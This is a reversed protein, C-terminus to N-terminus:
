TLVAISGPALHLARSYSETAHAVDRRALYLDGVAAHVEGSNPNSKALIGLEREAAPLKGSRVLIKAFLLRAAPDQPRQKVAQGLMGEAAALNGMTLYVDGLRTQTAPEGPKLKLVENFEAVA